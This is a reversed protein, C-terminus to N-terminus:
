IAGVAGRKHTRAPRDGWLFLAGCRGEGADSQRSGGFGVRQEISGWPVRRNWREARWYVMASQEICDAKLKLRPRCVRCFGLKQEACALRVRSSHGFLELLDLSIRQTTTGRLSALTSWCLATIAARLRYGGCASAMSAVISSELWLSVLQFARLNSLAFAATSGSRYFVFWVELMAQLEWREVGSSIM